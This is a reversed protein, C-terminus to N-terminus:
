RSSVRNYPKFFSWGSKTTSEEQNGDISKHSRVGSCGAIGRTTPFSRRSPSMLRSAALSAGM